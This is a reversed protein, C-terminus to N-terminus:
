RHGNGNNSVKSIGSIATSKEIAGSVDLNSSSQNQSQNLRQEQTFNGIFIKLQNQFAPDLQNHPQRSSQLNQAKRILIQEFINVNKSNGGQRPQFNSGIANFEMKSMNIKFNATPISLLEVKKEKYFDELYNYKIIRNIKLLITNFLLPNMVLQKQADLSDSIMKQYEQDIQKYDDDSFIQQIKLAPSLDKYRKYDDNSPQVSSLRQMSLKQEQTSSQDQYEDHSRSIQLQKQQQHNHQQDYMISKQIKKQLVKLQQVVDKAKDLAHRQYDREKVLTVYKTLNPLLENIFPDNIFDLLIPQTPNFIVNKPKFIKQIMQMDHSALEKEKQLITQNVDAINKNDRSLRIQGQIAYVWQDLDYQSKTALIYKRNDNEIEFCYKQKPISVTAIQANSLMILNFNKDKQKENKYYFLQDKDLVFQREKFKDSNLSKKYLKGKREYTKNNIISKGLQSVVHNEEDFHTSFAGGKSRIFQEIDGNRQLCIKFRESEDKKFLENSKKFIPQVQDHAALKRVFLLPNTARTNIMFLGYEDKFADLRQSKTSQMGSTNLNNATKRFDQNSTQQTLSSSSMQSTFQHREFSSSTNLNSSSGSTHANFTSSKGTNSGNIVAGTVTNNLASQNTSTTGGGVKSKLNKIIESATTDESVIVRTYNKFGLDLYIQIHSKGAPLQQSSYQQSDQTSYNRGMSQQNNRNTQTNQTNSSASGFLSQQLQAFFGLSQQQQQQPRQQLQQQTQFIENSFDLSATQRSSSRQKSSLM